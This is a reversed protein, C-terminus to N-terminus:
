QGASFVFPFRIQCMGGEPKPFRWRKVARKMCDEVGRDGLTSDEVMVGGVRGDTMVRWGLTVKGALEPSRALEREYCFQIGRQRAQVVRLIDSEKCFGTLGPAGRRVRSTVERKERGGLSAQTGGGAGTHLSGMGRVSGFGQGGGGDGTGRLGMGETGRGIDVGGAGAMAASLKSDFGTKDGFVHALPGRGLQDSGLARHIGVDKVREVQETDNRAVNSEEVTDPEGFTGEEDGAKKAVEEVVPEETAEDEMEEVPPETVFAIFRDSLDLSAFAPEVSWLLFAAILFGLHLVVAGLMAGLMSPELGGWLPAAPPRERGDGLQFFVSLGDALDLTGHDRGGVAIERKGIGDLPRLDDGALALRGSMAPTPHLTYGHPRPTFLVHREGLGALDPVVLTCRRDEGVTVLGDALTESLLTDHWLIAVRLTPLHTDKMSTDRM